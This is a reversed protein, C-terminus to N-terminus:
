SGAPAGRTQTYEPVVDEDCSDTATVQPPEPLSNCQASTDAPVNVLDPKTTDVININQSCTLTAGISGTATCKLNATFTRVIKEPCAGAGSQIASDSSTVDV